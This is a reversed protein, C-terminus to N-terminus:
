FFSLISRILPSVALAYVLLGIVVAIVLGARLRRYDRQGIRDRRAEAARRGALESEPVVTRKEAFIDAHYLTPGDPGAGLERVIVTFGRAELEARIDEAEERSSAQLRRIEIEDPHALDIMREPKV